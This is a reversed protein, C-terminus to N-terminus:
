VAPRQRGQAGRTVGLDLYTKLRQNFAKDAHGEVVHGCDSGSGGLVVIDNGDQNFRYLTLTSDPHRCCIIEIMQPSDTIFLVPQQHQIFNLGAIAAGSGIKRVLVIADEAVNDGSGFTQAIAHRDAGTESPTNRGIYQLRTVMAGGK